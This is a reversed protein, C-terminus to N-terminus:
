ILLTIFAPCPFQLNVLARDHSFIDQLIGQPQLASATGFIVVLLRVMSKEGRVVVASWLRLPKRFCDSATEAVTAAM